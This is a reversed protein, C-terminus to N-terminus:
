EKRVNSDQGALFEIQVKANCQKCMHFLTEHTESDYVEAFETYGCRPCRLGKIRM